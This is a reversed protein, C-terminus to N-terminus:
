GCSDLRGDQARGSGGNRVRPLGRCGARNRDLVSSASRRAASDRHRRAHASRRRTPASKRGSVVEVRCPTAEEVRSGADEHSRRVRVGRRRAIHRSRRRVAPARIRGVRGSLCSRKTGAGSAGTDRSGELRRTLRRRSGPRGRQLRQTRWPGRPRVDVAGRVALRFLRGARDPLDAAFERVRPGCAPGPGTNTARTGAPPGSPRSLRPLPRPGERFWGRGKGGRGRLRVRALRRGDARADRGGQRRYRKRSPWASSPASEARFLMRRMRPRDPWTKAWAVTEAITVGEFVSASGSPWGSRALFAPRPGQSFVDRYSGDAM